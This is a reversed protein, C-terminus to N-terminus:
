DFREIISKTLSAFDRLVSAVPRGVLAPPESMTVDAGLTVEMYSGKTIKMFATRVPTIELNANLFHVFGQSEFSLGVHGTNSGVVILRTHKRTRDTIHLGYLLPNAAEWPTLQAIKARDGPSLKKIKAAGKEKNLFEAEDACIPFYVQNESRGNRVALACALADLTARLEHAISGAKIAIAKPVPKALEVYFVGDGTDPEVEHSFKYAGSVIFADIAAELDDIEGWCYGIREKHDTLDGAM